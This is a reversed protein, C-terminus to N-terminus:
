EIANLIAGFLEGIAEGASSLAGGIVEGAGDFVSELLDEAGDSSVADATGSVGDRLKTGLSEIVTPDADLIQNPDFPQDM